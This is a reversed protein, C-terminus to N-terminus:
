HTYCITGGCRSLLENAKMRAGIFADGGEEISQLQNKITPLSHLISRAQAWIKQQKNEQLEEFLLWRILLDHSAFKFFADDRLHNKTYINNEKWGIYQWYYAQGADFTKQAGTMSIIISSSTKTFIINMLRQTYTTKLNILNARKVGILDQMPLLVQGSNVQEKNQDRIKNFIPLITRLPTSNNSTAPNKTLETTPTGTSVFPLCSTVARLIKTPNSSVKKKLSMKPSVKEQTFTLLLCFDFKVECQEGNNLPQIQIKTQLFNM